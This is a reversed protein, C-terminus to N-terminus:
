SQRNPRGCDPNAYDCETRAYRAIAAALVDRDTPKVFHACAGLSLARQKDDHVSHVIVPIHKTTELGSLHELVSWGSRDPLNIDLMILAPQRMEVARLGAAATPAALVRFGLRGLSRQALDAVDAEDDIVLIVPGQAIGSMEVSEEQELDECLDLNLPTRLTFISGEGKVSRLSIDGGLLQAM